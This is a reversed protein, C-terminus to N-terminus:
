CRSTRPNSRPSNRSVEARRPDAQDARGIIAPDGRRVADAVALVTARTAAWGHVQWTLPEHLPELNFSKPVNRGRFAEVVWPRGALRSLLIVVGGVIAIAQRSLVVVVVLLMPGFILTAGGCGAIGALVGYRRGFEDM